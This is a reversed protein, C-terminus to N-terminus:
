ADSALPLRLRRRQEDALHPLVFANTAALMREAGRLDSWDIGAGYRQAFELVRVLPKPDGGLSIARLGQLYDDRYSIPIVIRQLGAATMEANMFVRATRGNGDTFPHVEAILFMMFVARPFGEPLALYHRFGEILTGNVLDPHVFSTGGARNAREKFRGPDAAPRNGLIVAHDARLQEVFEAGDAPVRGRKAPDDIVEFTGLVDHADEFRGTPVVGGFVIGEAESVEFETGEIFNSFYAEFFSLTTRKVKQAVYTPPLQQQLQTRLTDLLEIRRPDFGEGRGHARASATSLPAAGTGLVAGILDGLEEMEAEAGLAPAVRRAQDRLENLSAIGRLAVMRALREEIEVRSLTRAIGRNQTRSPRLNDLFKRAPGSFHLGDMFPM